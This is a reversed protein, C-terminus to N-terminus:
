HEEALHQRLLDAGFDNDFDRWVSHPHNAGNQVNVWEMIFTPGQARYYHPAGKEASGSWAFRVNNIGADRIKKWDAEALEPRNRSVYIDILKELQAKQDDNLDTYPIGAAALPEVKAVIPTVVDEPAAGELMVKKMQDADLSTM